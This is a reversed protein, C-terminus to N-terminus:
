GRMWTVLDEGWKELGKDGSMLAIPPSIHNHGPLTWFEIRSGWSKNSLEVFDETPVKVEEVPDFESLIVLEKPVFTEQRSKGAKVLKQLLGYPQKDDVEKEDGYYNRLMQTRGGGVASRFHFPVGMEIIGKLSIPGVDSFLTKRQELFRQDLMFTALHVGGASNGLIFVDRKGSPDIDAVLKLVASLDEAGSPFRADEGGDESNVRRYDPIITTFGRKAFFAGLNHYVLGDPIVPVIKDGSVLGGGYLFILYPSQRSDGERLPSARYIDLKQRPHPGYSKTERPVEM